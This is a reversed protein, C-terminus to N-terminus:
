NEVMENNTIPPSAPDLRPLYGLLAQIPPVKITANIHHNHVATTIPLWSKWDDQEAGAVLHLFQEIWQNKRESLGDTQPHFVM